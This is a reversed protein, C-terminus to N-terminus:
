CDKSEEDVTYVEWNKFGCEPCLKNKYYTKALQTWAACGIDGAALLGRLLGSCKAGSFLHAASAGKEPSTVRGKMVLRSLATKSIQEEHGCNKCLIIIKSM